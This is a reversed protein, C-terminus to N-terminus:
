PMATWGGVTLVSMSSGRAPSCLRGSFSAVCTRARAAVAVVIEPRLM